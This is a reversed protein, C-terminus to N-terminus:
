LRVMVREAIWGRWKGGLRMEMRGDDRERFCLEVCSGEIRFDGNEKYILRSTPFWFDEVVLGDGELRVAHRTAGNRPPGEVIEYTGVLRELDERPGAPLGRDAAFSGLALARCPLPWAGGGAARSPFGRGALRRGDDEDKEPREYQHM